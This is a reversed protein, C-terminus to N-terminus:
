MAKARRVAKRVKNQNLRRLGTETKPKLHGMTTCFDSLFLVDKYSKLPDRRTEECTDRLTQSRKWKKEFAKINKDNLDRPSYT